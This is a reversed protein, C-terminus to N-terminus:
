QNKQILNNNEYDHFWTWGSQASSVIALGNNGVASYSGDGSGIDTWDANSNESNVMWTSNDQLGGVVFDPRSGSRDIALHYFQSTVYGRDINQWNVQNATIDETRSLGGDHGSIVVKPDSPLFVASHQDAHHNPYNGWGTLSPYGGIHKYSTSTFGDNSFFLNTGGLIVHNENDPKVALLM